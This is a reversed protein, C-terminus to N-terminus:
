SLSPVVEKPDGTIMMFYNDVDEAKHTNFKTCATVEYERGFPTRCACLFSPSPPLPYTIWRKSPDTVM